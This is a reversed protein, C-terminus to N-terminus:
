YYARDAEFYRAIVTLRKVIVTFTRIVAGFFYNLVM